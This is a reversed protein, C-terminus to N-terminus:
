NAFLKLLRYSAIMEVTNVTSRFGTNLATV